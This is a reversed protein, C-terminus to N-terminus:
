PARFEDDVLEGHDEAHNRLRKSGGRQIVVHVLLPFDGAEVTGCVFVVVVVDARATVVDEGADKDRCDKTAGEEEVEDPGLAVLIPTDPDRPLDRGHGGGSNPKRRTDRHRDDGRASRCIDSSHTRLPCLLKQLLVALVVLTRKDVSVVRAGHGGNDKRPKPKDTSNRPSYVVRIIVHYFSLVHVLKPGVTGDQQDNGLVVVFLESRPRRPNNRLSLVVGLRACHRLLYRRGWDSRTGGVEGGLFLWDTLV